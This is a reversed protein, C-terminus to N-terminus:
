FCTKILKTVQHVQEEHLSSSSPLSLCQQHIIKSVDNRQIYPLHTFMQNQNMPVWLPRTQVKNDILKQIVKEQQPSRITFLWNNVKTEPAVEQFFVEELSALETRYIEANRTRVEIFSDLQEMQALGMAALINVLRYNYGIEDHVYAFPDAKAQTTLHKARKAAAENKCIIMGGGGTTIIKNGNFSFCGFDGFTGAHKGKYSSGLAETSDEIVELNHADCIRMLEDMDGMNGLVHVPMLAKIKKGDKKYVVGQETPETETQLFHELLELDMQWNGEKVDMFLPKAGAYVISNASAIFTINPCIVYDDKEVGALILSIHLASTGNVTAIAYPVGVYKAIAEEFDTVFSGVSSVWNTDLCEKVYKWENGGLTPISLPIPESIISKMNTPVLIRKKLM